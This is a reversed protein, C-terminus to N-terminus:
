GLDEGIFLLTNTHPLIVHVERMGYDQDFPAKAKLGKIDKINGWADDANEVLLYVSMENPTDSTYQIHLETNATRVIGYNPNASVM